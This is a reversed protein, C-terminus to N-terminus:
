ADLISWDVDTASFYKAFRAPWETRLLLPEGTVPHVFSLEHAHLLLGVAPRTALAASAAPSDDHRVPSSTRSSSPARDAGHGGRSSRAKPGASMGGYLSDGVIPHGLHALHVRIQHKRGTVLQAELLTHGGRTALSRVLTTAPKGTRGVRMRRADHRDRAIPADITRWGEAAPASCLKSGPLNQPLSGRIVALYRKRMGHSSVLADFAPQTAKDLSFLVIGSTPVDLRQVAQPRINGALQERVWDTLTAAGTGDGHVLLGAPKQVALAYADQWLIIPQPVAQSM